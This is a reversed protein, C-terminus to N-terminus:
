FTVESRKFMGAEIAAIQMALHLSHFRSLALNGVGFWLGDHGCYRWVGSSEGEGDLCWIPLVKDAVEPGCIGRM